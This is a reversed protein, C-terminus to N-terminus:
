YMGLFFFYIHCHFIFFMLSFTIVFFLIVQEPPPFSPEKEQAPGLYLCVALGQDEPLSKEQEKSPEGPSQSTPAPFPATDLEVEPWLPICALMESVSVFHFSLTPTGHICWSAEEFELGLRVDLFPFPELGDQAPATAPAPAMFTNLGQLMLPDLCQPFNGRPHDMFNQCLPNFVGTLLRHLVLQTPRVTHDHMGLGSSFPFEEGLHDPGLNDETCPATIVIQKWLIDEEAGDPNGELARLARALYLASGGPEPEPESCEHGGLPAHAPCSQWKLTVSTMQVHVYSMPGQLMLADQLHLFNGRPHGGFNQCPHDFAGTLLRHLVLQTPRVTHDHMGLGSSFPFEEGLHDPGLNDETCPATIVIQKWIIDEKLGYHDSEFARLARALHLTSGELTSERPQRFHSRYQALHSRRQLTFGRITGHIPDLRDKSTVVDQPQSTDGSAHDVRPIMKMLTQRTPLVVKRDGLVNSAGLDERGLHDSLLHQEMNQSTRFSQVLGPDIIEEATDNEDERRKQSRNTATHVPVRSLSTTDIVCDDQESSSSSKSKRRGFPRVRGQQSNLWRRCRRILSESQTKRRCLGQSTPLCCCSFM